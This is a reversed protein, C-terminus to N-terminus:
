LKKEALHAESASNNAPDNVYKPGYINKKIMDLLTEKKM